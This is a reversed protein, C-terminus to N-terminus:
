RLSPTEVRLKTEIRSSRHDSSAHHPDSDSDILQHWQCSPCGALGHRHETVSSDDSAEGVLRARNGPEPTRAVTVPTSAVVSSPWEGHPWQWAAPGPREPEPRATAKAGRRGAVAAM